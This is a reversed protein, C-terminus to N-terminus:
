KTLKFEKYHQLHRCFICFDWESYGKNNMPVEVRKRRQMPKGCKPCDCGTDIEIKRIKRIM